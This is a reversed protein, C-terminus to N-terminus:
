VKGGEGWSEGIHFGRELSGLGGNVSDGGLEGGSGVACAELIESALDVEDVTLLVSCQVLGGEGDGCEYFGLVM